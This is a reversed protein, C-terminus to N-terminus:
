LAGYIVYVLNGPLKIVHQEHSDEIVQPIRQQSEIFHNLLHAAAQNKLRHDATRQGARLQFVIVVEPVFIDKVLAIKRSHKEDLFGIGIIWRVPPYRIMTPHFGHQPTGTQFDFRMRFDFRPDAQWLSYGLISNIYEIM